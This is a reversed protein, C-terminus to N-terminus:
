KKEPPIQLRRLLAERLTQEDLKAGEPRKMEHIWFDVLDRFIQDHKEPSAATISRLLFSEQMMTNIVTQMSAALRDLEITKKVVDNRAIVLRDGPFMQYNSTVDGKDRIAELDVKYVRTPKGGQAPRILRIDKPEATSVLGGAFQLADLVTEQGTWPLRGPAAVDGLVYYNASNYATVDVFIRDSDEPKIPEGFIPESAAAPPEEEKKPHSRIEITITIQGGADLPIKIPKRPEEAIPKQPEEAKKEDQGRALLRVREGARPRGFYSRWGKRDQTSFVKRGSSIKRPKSPEGKPKKERDPQHPNDADAPPEPIAPKEGGKKLAGKEDGEEGKVEILGLLEDTLYKRMHKLIKVKAQEITLGKVEVEGYFGLSIKGDPRVMREGSIPRGPLAELLEVLLLDPPEIVHPLSIMAGEHPPPDDPIPSPPHPKLDYKEFSKDIALEVESKEAPPEAKAKKEVDQAKQDAAPSRKPEDRARAVGAAVVCCLVLSTGFVTAVHKSGRRSM